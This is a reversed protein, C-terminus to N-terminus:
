GKELFYVLFNERLEYYYKVLKNDKRKRLKHLYGSM